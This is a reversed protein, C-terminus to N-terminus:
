KHVRDFELTLSDSFQRETLSLLLHPKGIILEVQFQVLLKFGIGQILQILKNAQHNIKIM